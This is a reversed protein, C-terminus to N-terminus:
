FFNLGFVSTKGCKEAIGQGSEDEEDWGPRGVGGRGVSRGQEARKEAEQLVMTHQM